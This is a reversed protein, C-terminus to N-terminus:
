LLAVSPDINALEQLKRVEDAEVCELGQAYDILGPSLAVSGFLVLTGVLLSHLVGSCKRGGALLLGCTTCVQYCHCEGPRGHCIGCRMLDPYLNPPRTPHIFENIVIRISREVVDAIPRDIARRPPPEIEPNALLDGYWCELVVLLRDLHDANPAIIAKEYQSIATTSVQIREALQKQTFGRDIRIRRLWQGRTIRATSHTKAM